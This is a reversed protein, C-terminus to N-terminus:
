PTSEPIITSSTVIRAAEHWVHAERSEAQRDRLLPAKTSRSVAADGLSSFFQALDALDTFTYLSM